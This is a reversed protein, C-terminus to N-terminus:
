TKDNHERQPHWTGETVKGHKGREQKDVEHTLSSQHRRLFVLGAVFSVKLLIWRDLGQVVHRRDREALRLVNVSFCM